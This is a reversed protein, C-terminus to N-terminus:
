SVCQLSIHCAFYSYIFNVPSFIIGIVLILFAYIGIFPFFLDLYFSIRKVRECSFSFICVIFLFSLRCVNCYAAFNHVFMSLRQGSITAMGFGFVLIFSLFWHFLSCSYIFSFFFLSNRRLLFDLSFLALILFLSVLDFYFTQHGMLLCNLLYLCGLYFIVNFKEYM